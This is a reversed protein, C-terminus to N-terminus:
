ANKSRRYSVHLKHALASWQEEVQKPKALYRAVAYPNRVLQSLRFCAEDLSYNSNPM